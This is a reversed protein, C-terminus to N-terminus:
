QKSHAVLRAPVRAPARLQFGEGQFVNKDISTLPPLLQLSSLLSCLFTHMIITNYQNLIHVLHNLCYASTFRMPMASEPRLRKFSSFRIYITFMKSIKKSEGKQRDSLSRSITSIISFYRNFEATITSLINFCHQM